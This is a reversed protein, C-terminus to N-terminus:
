QFVGPFLRLLEDLAHVKALDLWAICEEPNVRIGADAAPV